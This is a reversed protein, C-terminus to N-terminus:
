RTSTSTSLPSTSETGHSGRLMVRLRTLGLHPPIGCPRIRPPGADSTGMWFDGDPVLVVETKLTRAADGKRFVFDGEISSADWPVQRGNTKLRVAQRVRKFVEELKLGPEQLARLLESTYLGNRGGGDDAVRGPSTAYAILTGSPADIQALGRSSSHFSRGFPNDRCADLIAINLRSKSEEMRVLVRAVDVAELDVDRESQIQAGLPILYNRGDLQVGHGAYFFLGVGGPRLRDGFEIIARRMARDGANERIIVAFGLTKLVAAMARADNVPNRLPTNTYAGNGIVLAVRHETGIDDGSRWQAGLSALSALVM